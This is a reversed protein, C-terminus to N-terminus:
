ILAHVCTSSAQSNAPLIARLDYFLENPPWGLRLYLLEKRLSRLAHSLTDKVKKLVQYSLPCYIPCVQSLHGLLMGM